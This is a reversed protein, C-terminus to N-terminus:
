VLAAREGDRRRRMVAGVGFVGLLLTAWTAPEPAAGAPVEVGVVKGELLRVPSFSTCGSGSNNCPGEGAVFPTSPPAGITVTGPSDFNTTTDIDFLQDGNLFEGVGLLAGFGTDRLSNAPNPTIYTGGVLFPAHASTTINIDFYTKTVTDFEFSGTATGRDNFIAGDLTWLLVNASASTAILTAAAASLGCVTKAFGFKM